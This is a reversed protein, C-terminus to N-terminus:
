KGNQCKQRDSNTKLHHVGIDPSNINTNGHAIIEKVRMTVFCNQLHVPQCVQQVAAAKFLIYFFDLWRGSKQEQVHVIEFSQVISVTM